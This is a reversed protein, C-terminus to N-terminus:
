GYGCCFELTCLPSVVTLEVEIGSSHAAKTLTQQWATLEPQDRHLFETKAMSIVLTPLSWELAMTKAEWIAAQIM